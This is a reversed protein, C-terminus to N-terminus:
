ERYEGGERDEEPYLADVLKAAVGCCPEIDNEEPDIRHRFGAAPIRHGHDFHLEPREIRQGQEKRSNFVAKEVRATDGGPFRWKTGLAQGAFAYVDSSKDYMPRDIVISPDAVTDPSTDRTM